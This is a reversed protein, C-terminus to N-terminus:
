PHVGADIQAVLETGEMWADLAELARQAYALGRAQRDPIRTPLPPLLGHNANMPAFHNPDAETIYRCLGGLMTEAPPVTAPLGQLIRVANIGALIGTAASEMYGEVGVIQGALFLRSEKATELTTRLARPSNVYTNRHMVGFRVFEAQELGPIMRFVRKQDGWALRTQFGVLSWLTGSRNEQRLQVVAYPRRGTRPDRLGIPRMPGYALTRYGRRALEEVPICAEFFPTKDEDPLHPRAQEATVLAEWFARYEAETMPCNLYDGESGSESRGRRSARFVVEKNISDATVTPAVADYFALMESGLLSCLSQALNDSTLPGTAVVCPRETPVGEAEQAVVQIAPHSRVADTVDRAFEEVDVALAEGAPVAHRVAKDLLLSGLRRMEEKLLGAANSLRNSKLSNSCVLEALYGTRHAPTMRAPRMEVLLVSAGRTAAAWAAETGALGGGVVVVRGSSM